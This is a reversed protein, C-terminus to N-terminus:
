NLRSLRLVLLLTTCWGFFRLRSRFGSWKLCFLLRFNLLHILYTHLLVMLSREIKKFIIFKKLTIFRDIKM